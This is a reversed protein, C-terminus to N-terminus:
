AWLFDLCSKCQACERQFAGSEFQDRSWFMTSALCAFRWNLRRGSTFSHKRKQECSPWTSRAKSNKIKYIKHVWFGFSWQILVSECLSSHSSCTFEELRRKQSFQWLKKCNLPRQRWTSWIKVAVRKRLEVMLAGQCEIHPMNTSHIHLYRVYRDVYYLFKYDTIRIYM